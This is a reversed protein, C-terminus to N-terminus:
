DTVETGRHRYSTFFNLFIDILFILDIFYIIESGTRYTKHLFASHFPILICNAIILVLVFFDWIIRFHSNERIINM